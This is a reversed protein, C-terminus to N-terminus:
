ENVKAVIASWEGEEQIEIVELGLREFADTVKKEKDVLIGSSIFIAGPKMHKKVAEALMIVIEAMLNAVVIDAKFDTGKTLDGQIFKVNDGCHNYGGNEKAVEVAIPDIDIGLVNEAGLLDACIALIGSGTGVDLVDKGKCGAKDMLKACLSTTAHDGTGFAMGPDLELIKKTNNEPIEEWSPKVIINDTLQITKFHDKYSNMWDQDDIVEVSVDMAGLVNNTDKIKLEALAEKIDGLSNRGEDNDDLYFSIKPDYDTNFAAEEVYDWEYDNKKDLIERATNPNDVVTEDIGHVLLLGTLEEIGEETTTISVQLYKM